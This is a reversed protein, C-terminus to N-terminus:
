FYNYIKRRVLRVASTQSANNCLYVNVSLGCYTSALVHWLKVIVCRTSINIKFIMMAKEAVLNIM